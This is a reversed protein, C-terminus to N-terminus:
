GSDKHPSDETAEPESEAELDLAKEGANLSDFIRKLLAHAEEQSGAAAIPYADSGLMAEIFWKEGLKSVQVRGCQDLNILLGNDQESRPRTHIWM